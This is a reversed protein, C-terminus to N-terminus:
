AWIELTDGSGIFRQQRRVKITQGAILNSGVFAEDFDQDIKTTFNLEKELIALAEATISSITLLRNGGSVILAEEPLLIQPNIRMLSGCKVIAPAAALALMGQLFGRRTIGNSM